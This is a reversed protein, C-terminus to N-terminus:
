FDILMAAASAHGCYYHYRPATVRMAYRALLALAYVARMVGSAHAHEYEGNLDRM